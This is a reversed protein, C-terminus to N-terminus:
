SRASLLGTSLWTRSKAEKSDKVYNAADLIKKGSLVGLVCLFLTKAVSLYVRQTGQPSCLGRRFDQPPFTNV